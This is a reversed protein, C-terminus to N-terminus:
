LLGYGFWILLLPALAPVPVTQSAVVLPYVARDLVPSLDVAVALLVGAAIALGFGVLVASLTALSHEFLLSREEVLTAAVASPPPLLWRPVDRLRVVAEWVILLGLILGGPALWG